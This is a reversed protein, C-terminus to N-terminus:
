WEATQWSLEVINFPL